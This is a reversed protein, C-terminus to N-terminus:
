CCHSYTHVLMKIGINTSQFFLLLRITVTRLFFLFYTQFKVIYIYKKKGRQFIHVFIYQLIFNLYIVHYLTINLFFFEFQSTRYFKHIIIYSMFLIYHLFYIAYFLFINIM